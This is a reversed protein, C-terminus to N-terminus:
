KIRAILEKPFFAALDRNILKKYLPELLKECKVIFQEALEKRTDENYTTVNKSEIEDIDEQAYEIAQEFVDILEKNKM